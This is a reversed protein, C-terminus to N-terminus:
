RARIPGHFTWVGPALCDRHINRDARKGSSKCYLTVLLFPQKRHEELIFGFSGYRDYQQAASRDLIVLTM